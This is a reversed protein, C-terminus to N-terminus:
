PGRTASLGQGRRAFVLRGGGARAAADYREGLRTLLHLDSEDTQDLHPLRVGALGRTVRPTLDYEGAITRVLGGITVGEWSRTKRQKAGSRMDAATGRVTLTAPPGSLEVEDVAYRGMRVRGLGEYGLEVTM